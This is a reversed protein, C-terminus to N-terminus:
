CLKLLIEVYNPRFAAHSHKRVPPKPHARSSGHLARSPLIGEVSFLAPDVCILPPLYEGKEAELRGM